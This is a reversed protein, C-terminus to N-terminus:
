INKWTKRRVINSVSAQDIDFRTAIERQLIGGQQYLARITRVTAVDLKAHLHGLGKAQRGKQDRDRINEAQTGIRLHAPNCCPPNDCTHMVVMGAAISQGTSLELAVQHARRGRGSVDIQGYGDQDRWRTWPWCETPTGQQVKEWFREALPLGKPKPPGGGLPTGHRLCRGYHDQCWGRAHAPRECGDISCTLKNPM